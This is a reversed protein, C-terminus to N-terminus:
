ERINTGMTECAFRVFEGCQNICVKWVYISIYIYVGAFGRQESARLVFIYIRSNYSVIMISPAIRRVGEEISYICWDADRWCM